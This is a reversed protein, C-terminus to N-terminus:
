EEALEKEAEQVHLLNGIYASFDWRSGGAPNTTHRKKYANFEQVTLTGKKLKEYVEADEETLEEVKIKILHITLDKGMKEDEEEHAKLKQIEERFMKVKESVAEHTNKIKEEM